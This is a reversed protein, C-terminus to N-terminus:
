VEVRDEEDGATNHGDEGLDTVEDGVGPLGHGLPEIDLPSEGGGGAEIQVLETPSRFM